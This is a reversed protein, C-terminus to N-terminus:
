TQLIHFDYCLSKHNAIHRSYMYLHQPVDIKCNGVFDPEHKYNKILIEIAGCLLEQFGKSKFYEM